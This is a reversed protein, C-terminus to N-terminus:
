FNIVIHLSTTPVIQLAKFISSSGLIGIDTFSSHRDRRLLCSALRGESSGASCSRGLQCRGWGIGYVPLLIAQKLRNLGCYCKAATVEVLAVIIIGYIM